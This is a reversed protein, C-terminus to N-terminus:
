ERTVNPHKEDRHDYDFGYVINGANEGIVRCTYFVHNSSDVAIDYVPDGLECESHIEFPITGGKELVWIRSQGGATDAIYVRGGGDVEVDTPENLLNGLVRTVRGESTVKLVAKNVIDLVYVDGDPGAAVSYVGNLDVAAANERAATMKEELTADGAGPSGTGAFTYARGSPDVKWVRHATGSAIYLNGARDLALGDPTGIDIEDAPGGNVRGDSEPCEQTPTTEPGTGGLGADPVRGAFVSAQGPTKKSIQIVVCNGKDAVYVDGEPSVVVDGPSSLTASTPSQLERFRGERSSGLVPVEAPDTASFRVVEHGASDAFYMNGDADVDIGVWGEDLEVRVPNAPWFSGPPPKDGGGCGGLGWLALLVVGLLAVGVAAVASAKRHATDIFRRVSRWESNIGALEEGAQKTTPLLGAAPTTTTRAAHAHVPVGSEALWLPGFAATGAEAIRMALDRGTVHRHGPRKDLAVTIVHRLEDPIGPLPPPIAARHLVAFAEAPEDRGFPPHGGAMEYLVVGLSYIDAAPGLPGSDFQEPAMYPASGVVRSAAAAPYSFLKALGFDTLKPTGDAAFLVNGPKVDRHLVGREHAYDLALAIAIGTAFSQKLGFGATLRDALSGGALREMVLATLGYGAVPEPECLKVIHPHVLGSLLKVEDAPDQKGDIGGASRFIKVAVDAGTGRHRAAFVVGFGGHGIEAGIEYAPLLREVTAREFIL